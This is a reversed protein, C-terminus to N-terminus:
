FRFRGKAVIKMRNKAPSQTKMVNVRVDTIIKIVPVCEVSLLELKTVTILM